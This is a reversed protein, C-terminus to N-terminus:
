FWTQPTIDSLGLSATSPIAFSSSSLPHLPKGLPRVRGIAANMTISGTLRVGALAYRPPASGGVLGRVRIALLITRLDIERNM